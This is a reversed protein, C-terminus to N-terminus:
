KKFLELAQGYTKTLYTNKTLLGINKLVGAKSRLFLKASNYQFNSKHAKYFYLIGSYINVIAFTKNGSGREKHVIKINPYFFVDFNAKKVRYCLEMDEMYMFIKKDFGDLMEFLSRRIMLSAGSVWDVKTIRSPSKRLMGFRELGLLMLFLNPLNYFKVASKQNSGNINELRAGLVGVNDNMSLFEVMEILGRDLTETDSNLFLLFEGRARKAAENNGRGFGLNERSEVFTLNKKNELLKELEKGSGDFSANDILIIEFDGNELEKEYQKYVSDICSLTLDKTNYNIVIISLKVM